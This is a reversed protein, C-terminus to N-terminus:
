IVSNLDTTKELSLYLCRGDYKGNYLRILNIGGTEELKLLLAHFPLGNINQESSFNIQLWNGVKMEEVTLNHISVGIAPLLISNEFLNTINSKINNFKPNNKSICNKNNNSFILFNEIKEMLNILNNSNEMIIQM